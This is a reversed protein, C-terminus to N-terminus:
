DGVVKPRLYEEGLNPSTAPVAQRLPIENISREGKKGDLAFFKLQITASVM